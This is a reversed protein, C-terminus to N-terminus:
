NLLQSIVRHRRNIDMPRAKPGLQFELRRRLGAPEEGSDLFALLESVLANTEEKEDSDMSTSNWLVGLRRECQYSTLLNLGVLLIVSAAVARLFFRNQWIRDVISSARTLEKQSLFEQKARSLIQERLGPRPRKPKFKRLYREM